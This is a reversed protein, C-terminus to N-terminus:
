SDERSPMRGVTPRPARSTTSAARRSVTDPSDGSIEANLPADHFDTALDSM